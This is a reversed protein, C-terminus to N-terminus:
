WERIHGASYQDEIKKDFMEKFRENRLESCVDAEEPEDIHTCTSIYYEDEEGM